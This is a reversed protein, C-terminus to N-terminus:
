VVGGAGQLSRESSEVLIAGGLQKLSQWDSDEVVIGQQWSQQQAELLAHSSIHTHFGRALSELDFDEVSLEIVMNHHEAKGDDGDDCFFLEPTVCGQNLVFLSRKPSSGNCWSAKCAIGKAALKVLESYALWRNHCHHLNLTLQKAGVMKELGYDLIVPLHCALSAHHLDINLSTDSVEKIDVPSDSELGIYRSANLFHPVGHLGAMQLDAVMTAIVDAEGCCRKLGMFAKTVATVLENHSVIM